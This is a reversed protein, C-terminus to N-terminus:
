KIWTFTKVDKILQDIERILSDAKTYNKISSPNVGLDAANKDIQNLIASLMGSEKDAFKSMDDADKQLEDAKREWDKFSANHKDMRQKMGIFASAYSELQALSKNLDDMLALEVKESALEEKSSAEQKSMQAIKKFVTKQTNM